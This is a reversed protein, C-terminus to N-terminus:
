NKLTNENFHHQISFLPACLPNLVQRILNTIGFNAFKNNTRVRFLEVVVLNDPSAKSTEDIVNQENTADNDVREHKFFQQWFREFSWFWAWLKKM